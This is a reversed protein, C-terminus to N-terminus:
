RRVNRERVPGLRSSSPRRGQVVLHTPGLHVRDPGSLPSRACPSADADGRRGREAPGKLIRNEFNLRPQAAVMEARQRGTIQTLDLGSGARTTVRTAAFRARYGTASVGLRAM